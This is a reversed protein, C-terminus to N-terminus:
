LNPISNLRINIKENIKDKNINSLIKRKNKANYIIMIQSILKGQIKDDHAKKNEQFPNTNLFKIKFLKKNDGINNKKKFLNNTKTVKIETRERSNIYKEPFNHNFNSIILSKIKNKFINAKDRSQSKCNINPFQKNFKKRTDKYSNYHRINESKDFAKNLLIDLKKNFLEKKLINLEKNKTKYFKSPIEDNDKYNSYVLKKFIKKSEEPLIEYLMLENDIHLAKNNYIKLYYITNNAKFKIVVNNTNSIEEIVEIKSKLVKELINIYKDM